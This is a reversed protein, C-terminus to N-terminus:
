KLAPQSLKAQRAFLKVGKIVDIARDLQIDSVKEPKGQTDDSPQSDHFHQEALKREDEESVPVIIDPTVDPPAEYLGRGSLATKVYNTAEKYRLNDEAVSANKNKIRYSTADTVVPKTIADVKVAYTTSCGTWAAATLGATAVLLIVRQGTTTM